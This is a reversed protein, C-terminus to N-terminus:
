LRKIKRPKIIYYVDFLPGVAMRPRATIKQIRM